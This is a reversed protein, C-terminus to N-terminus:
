LNDANTKKLDIIPGFYELSFPVDFMDFGNAKNCVYNTVLQTIYTGIMAAIHSTQKATCSEESIESDLFLTREYAAIQSRNTITYISFQEALLRGDILVKDFNGDVDENTKQMFAHYIYHRTEMNDVAAIIFDSQDLAARDTPENGTFKSSVGVVCTYPAPMNTDNDDNVMIFKGVTKRVANVKKNFLNDRTFLQGSYNTNDVIDADFLYVNKVGIRSLFLTLWSGIGGAGVVTVTKNQIDSVWPLSRFRSNESAM